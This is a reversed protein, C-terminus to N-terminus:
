LLGESLAQLTQAIALEQGKNRAALTLKDISQPKTIHAVIAFSSLRAHYLDRDGNSLKIPDVTSLRNGERRAARKIRKLGSESARVVDVDTLRKYGQGHVSSFVAGTDREAMRRASQMHPDGGTVPRGIADSLTEFTITEDVGIKSLAALLLRTDVAAEFAPRTM